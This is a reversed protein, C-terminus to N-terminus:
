AQKTSLQNKSIINFEQHIVTAQKRQTDFIPKGEDIQRLCRVITSHILGISKDTNTNDIRPILVAEAKKKLHKQIIRISKYHAIYKNYKPDITMQKSRVAFREKHKEENNIYIVFPICSPYKKMLTTMYHVTLHVGEIVLSENRKDHQDIIADLEAQVKYCQEKYGILTRKKEKQIEPGVYQATEYTSAFLIPMQEKSYFNRM